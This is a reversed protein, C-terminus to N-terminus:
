ILWSEEDITTNIMVVVNQQRALAMMEESWEFGAVLPFATLGIKQLIAARSVARTIDTEEAWWSVEIALVIDTKTRKQKGQWLLDLSLVHDHEQETILGNDEAEELLLGIKNRADHGRRMYRGFISDARNIIRSEYNFGKLHGVDKKVQTMDKKLVSVDKKLVSVDEKLVSVDEKLVSVEEKLVSVDEKLVSVDKKLVSVDEKLVSVDEKLVSVDEKLVSVDKKLVSVDKKLVSVDEKLVSVDEKLIDINKEARGMRGTMERLMLQTQRQSEALEHFAKAIDIDPFLAKALKRRWQPHTNIFTVFESFTTETIVM